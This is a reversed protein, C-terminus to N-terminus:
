IKKFINKFKEGSATKTPADIAASIVHNNQKIKETKRKFFSNFKCTIEEHINLGIREQM